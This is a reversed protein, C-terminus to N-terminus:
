GTEVCVSLGLPYFSQAKESHLIKIKACYRKIERSNRAEAAPSSAPRAMVEPLKSQRDHRGVCGAPPYLLTTCTRLTGRECKTFALFFVAPVLAQAARLTRAGCKTWTLETWFQHELRTSRLRVRVTVNKLATM